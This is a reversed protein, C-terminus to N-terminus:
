EKPLMRRFLEQSEPSIKHFPMKGELYLFVEGDGDGSACTTDTGWTHNTVIKDLQKQEWENYEATRQFAM